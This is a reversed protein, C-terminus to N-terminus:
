PKKEVTYGMAEALKLFTEHAIQILYEKHTEAWYAAGLSDALTVAHVRAPIYNQIEM